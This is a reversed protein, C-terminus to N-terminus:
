GRNKVQIVEIIQTARDEPLGLQQFLEEILKQEEADVVGDSFLMDAALAFVTERLSEPVAKSAHILLERSGLRKLVQVLRAIMKDFHSASQDAFLQMRNAVANFARVEDDSVEGDAAVTAILVGAVGERSDFELSDSKGGLVKDFFGM